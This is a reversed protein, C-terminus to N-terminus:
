ECEEHRIARVPIGYLQEILDPTLAATKHCVLTKSLCAVRKIYRSVFGIDHSVVLITSAPKLGAGVKNIMKLLDFINKEVHIDINSTPEDLLLLEPECVLARAIMVRQLEGGSLSSISKDKLHTIELQELTSAPKLGAGVGMAVVNKVTIPFDRNFTSFQPVYGIKKRALEPTKGFVTIKGKNPKLLGMILKLLTTKGGGNPGVIGLFEGEAIEFNINELVLPENNYSFNVDKLSIISKM